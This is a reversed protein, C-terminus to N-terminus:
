EREQGARSSLYKMLASGIEQLGWVVSEANVRAGDLNTHTREDAFLADVREQGLAEYRRAVIDNLDLFPTGGARAVERAWTAYDERVIRGDKWVKRPVLSCIIPTAGRERSGAVYQRLYWGFSHVVEFTSTLAVTGERVDEGIGPLSGRPRTTKFLEGGDNHGFQILVFDGPRMASLVRVWLGETIFTRSSRGGRAYNVVNIRTRDFYEGIVSGWGTQGSTEVTVTSDGVLFLTPLAPDIPPLPPIETALPPPGPEQTAAQGPLAPSFLLFTLFFALLRFHSTPLKKRQFTHLAFNSTDCAPTSRV